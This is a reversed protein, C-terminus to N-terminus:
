QEYIKQCQGCKLQTTTAGKTGMYFHLERSGRTVYTAHCDRKVWTFVPKTSRNQIRQLFGKQASVAVQLATRGVVM